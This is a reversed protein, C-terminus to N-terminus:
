LGNPRAFEGHLEIAAKDYARAADEATAFMGLHFQKGQHQIRAQWRRGAPFIGKYPVPSTTKKRRNRAGEEFTCVRLNARRNDLPNGNIHDVFEGDKAGAIVRHLLRKKGDIRARLYKTDRGVLEWAKNRLLHQDEPDIQVGDLM